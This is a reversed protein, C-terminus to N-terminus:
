LNELYFHPVPIISTFNNKCPLLPMVHCLKSKLGYRDLVSAVRKVLAGNRFHSYAEISM